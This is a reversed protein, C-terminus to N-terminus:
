CQWCTDQAKRIACPSHAGRTQLYASVCGSYASARSKATVSAALAVTEGPLLGSGPLTAWAQLLPPLLSVARTAMTVRGGPAGRVLLLRDPLAGLLAAPSGAGFSAVLAAQGDWRLLWVQARARLAPGKCRLRRGASPSCAPVPQRDSLRM